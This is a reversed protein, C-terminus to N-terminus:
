LKRCEQLIEDYFLDDLAEALAGNVPKGDLRCELIELLEDDGPLWNGHGNCFYDSTKPSYEVDFQINIQSNEKDTIDITRKTM